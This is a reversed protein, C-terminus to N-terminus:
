LVEKKKGTMEDIQVDDDMVGILFNSYWSANLQYKKPLPAKEVTKLGIIRRVTKMCFNIFRLFKVQPQNIIHKEGNMRFSMDRMFEPVCQEPLRVDYFKIESILPAATGIRQEGKFEYRWNNIESVLKEHTGKHAYTAFIIHSM